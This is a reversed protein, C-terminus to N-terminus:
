FILDKTIRSNTDHSTNRQSTHNNYTKLELTLPTQASLITQPDQPPFILMFSLSLHTISLSYQVLFPPIHIYKKDAGCM